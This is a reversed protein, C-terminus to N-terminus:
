FKHQTKLDESKVAKLRIFPNQKAYKGLLQGFRVLTRAFVHSRFYVGPSSSSLNFIRGKVVEKLCVAIEALFGSPYM